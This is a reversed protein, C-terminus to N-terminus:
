HIADVTVGTSESERGRQPRRPSPPQRGRITVVVIQDFDLGLRPLHYEPRDPLNLNGVAIDVRPNVAVLGAAGFPNLCREFLAHIFNDPDAPERVHLLFLQGEGALAIDLM